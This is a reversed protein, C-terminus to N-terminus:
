KGLTINLTYTSWWANGWPLNFFWACFSPFNAFTFDHRFGLRAQLVQVNPAPNYVPEKGSVCNLNRLRRVHLTDLLITDKSVIAMTPMKNLLLFGRQKVQLDRGTMGTLSIRSLAWVASLSTLQDQKLSCGSLILVRQRNYILM